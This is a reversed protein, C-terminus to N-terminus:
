RILSESSTTVLWRSMMWSSTVRASLRPQTWSRMVALDPGVREGTVLLHVSAGDREFLSSWTAVVTEYSRWVLDLRLGVPVDRLSRSLDDFEIPAGLADGIAGGLLCGLVRERGTPM